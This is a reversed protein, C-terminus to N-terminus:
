LSRGRLLGDMSIILGSFGRGHVELVLKFYLGGVKMMEGVEVCGTAKDVFAYICSFM